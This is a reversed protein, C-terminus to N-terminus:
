QGSLSVSFVLTRGEANCVRSCSGYDSGSYRSTCINLLLFFLATCGMTICLSLRRGLLNISLINVPNVPFLFSFWLVNLSRVAIISDCQTFDTLASLSLQRCGWHRGFIRYFTSDRDNVKQVWLKHNAGMGRKKVRERLHHLRDKESIPQSSAPCWCRDQAMCPQTLMVPRPPNAGESWM